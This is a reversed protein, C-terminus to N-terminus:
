NEIYVACWYVTTFGFLAIGIIAILDRGAPDFIPRAASLALMVFSLAAFGLVYRRSFTTTQTGFMDRQTIRESSPTLTAIIPRVKHLLLANLMLGIALGVLAAVGLYALQQTSSQSPLFVGAIPACAMAGIVISWFLQMMMTRHASALTAKQEANVFYHRFRGILWPNPARYLFGGEVPRFTLEEMGDFPNWWQRAMTRRRVTQRRAVCGGDTRVM